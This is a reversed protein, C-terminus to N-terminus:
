YSEMVDLKNFLVIHIRARDLFRTNLIEKIENKLRTENEPKLDAAYKEAFHRRVFDRLEYQRATLETQAANDNLTYGLIMEVTVSSRVPFDKTATTVPGILTYMAYEPRKATYPDTPDIASSQARGQKNVARVTIISVTVIFIVAALGIAAFKLINPLLAKLGGARKKPAVEMGHSEGGDLDLDDNDSM